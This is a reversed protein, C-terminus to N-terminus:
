GVAGARAERLEARGSGVGDSRRASINKCFGVWGCRSRAGGGRMGARGLHAHDLHEDGPGSIGYRYGATDPDTFGHRGADDHCESVDGLVSAGGYRRVMAFQHPESCGLRSRCM